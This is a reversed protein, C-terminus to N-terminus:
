RTKSGGMRKPGLVAGVERLDRTGLPLLAFAKALGGVRPCSSRVMVGV